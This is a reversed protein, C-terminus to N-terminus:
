TTQLGNRVNMEVEADQAAAFHPMLLACLAFLVIRTGVHM